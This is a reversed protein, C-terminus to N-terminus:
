PPSRGTDLTSRPSECITVLERLREEFAFTRKIVQCFLFMIEDRAIREDTRLDEANMGLLRLENKTGKDFCVGRRTRLM